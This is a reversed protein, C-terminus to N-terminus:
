IASRRGRTAREKSRLPKSFFKEAEFFDASRLHNDRAENGTDISNVKVVGKVRAQEIKDPDLAIEGNFETFKGNVKSIVLHKVSFGIESHSPDVAWEAAFADISLSFTALIGALLWTLRQM